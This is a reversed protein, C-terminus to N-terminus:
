KIYGKQQLEHIIEYVCSEASHKETNVTIDPSQPEEYPASIGSFHALDGSRARKYLGDTDRAECIELPTHVFVEVFKDSGISERADARDKRYPSVFAAISILGAENCLRAVVAARRVNESRENATFGLDKSLGLRMNEGDIVHPLCGMDFLKRELLYALTSKGSKPLGTLWITVPKQATREEREESSIRSTKPHVEAHASPKALAPDPVLEGTRRDIIMAGALTANSLRDILIFAGSARNREYPDFYLSSHLRFVVRGIDNLGLSEAPRSHLTNVDIAYRIASVEANLMRTMHKIRYTQGVELPEESMWVVMAEVANGNHPVNNVHVLMDGRSVDIEDELSVTVSMPPFAEELDGDFTTITKVKSRRGSPLAMVEDGQRIVGSAVTGAFGRFNLNPRIVYQVPFRLDVLNRDSGIHVTELYEILPLGRFWKMNDSVEVVNDGKLASIPIFHIEPIDLRQSFDEYDDRIQQFVEENYDVLDMKNVAVIVHKLGLLSAIFSHRKTQQIVGHRADILFLGVDANSAGTVTNRTYQEHGPTDAIIFNRRPTSFYRYAVDITIGQEREAKLGDCLLAYDIDGGASGCQASDNKLAALHDEYLTKSDYLLRGILTSKGDDVSGATVLRVIDKRENQRFLENATLTKEKM